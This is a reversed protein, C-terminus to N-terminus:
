RILAYPIPKDFPFQLNDKEGAYRKVARLLKADARVPPYFGIHRKFAAFYVLQLNM